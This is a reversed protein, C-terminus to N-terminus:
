TILRCPPNFECWIPLVQRFTLSRRVVTVTMSSRSNRHPNETTKRPQVAFEPATVKFPDRVSKAFSCQCRLVAALLNFETQARLLDAVLKLNNNNSNYTKLSPWTSCSLDSVTATRLRNSYPKSSVHHGYLPPRIHDLNGTM